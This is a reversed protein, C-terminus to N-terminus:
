LRRLFALRRYKLICRLCPQLITTYGLLPYQQDCFRQSNICNNPRHPLDETPKTARCRIACPPLFSGALERTPYSVKRGLFRTCYVELFANISSLDQPHSGQVHVKDKKDRPDWASTPTPHRPKATAFRTAHQRTRRTINNFSVNLASNVVRFLSLLSFLLGGNMLMHMGTKHSHFKFAIPHMAFNSDTAGRSDPAARALRFM